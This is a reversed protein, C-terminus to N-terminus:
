NKYKKKSDAIAEKGEQTKYKMVGNEIYYPNEKKKKNKRKKRTKRVCKSIKYWKM